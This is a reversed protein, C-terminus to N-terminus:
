WRDVPDAYTEGLWMRTVRNSANTEFVVLEGPIGYGNTTEVRFTHEGVPVLRGPALMPDPLLPVIMTLRGDSILVEIDAFPNRYRGVYRQWAPDPATAAPAVAKRIAPAVWDFVKEEYQAPDGDDANTFSIVAIKDPLSMRLDTRYGRLSGGHGIYTRGKFRYISFGLGWGQEWTEDIWQVRQMERVTSGRLIQAGGAAGDRFHLMAFKALDVVSTTIGAAAAIAKLDSWAARARPQGPLCRAYGAALGPHDRPPTTALTATMGLPQLVHRHVYDPWPEGTLATVIEGALALALNSYKWRTEAAFIHNQRGLRSRVADWDPFNADMWYPFAAERPLGSTHTILHRVTVPPAGTHESKVAFWPLHATVPDDLRLTGADRLQMIATATFLKSISAVRYLTDATAPIKKEADAHGFGRAWILRQDHVIGISLGPPVGPSGAFALHSELWATLVDLGSRVGPDSAVDTM